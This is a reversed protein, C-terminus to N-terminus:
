RGTVTFPDIERLSITNDGEDKDNFPIVPIERAKIEKLLEILESQRNEYSLLQEAIERYLPIWTFETM